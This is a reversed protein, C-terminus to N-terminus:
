LVAKSEVLSIGSKQTDCFSLEIDSVPVICCALVINQEQDKQTIHARSMRRSLVTGRIIQVKCIGCGGGGCGRPIDSFESRRIAELVTENGRCTVSEVKDGLRITVQHNIASKCMNNLHTCCQM